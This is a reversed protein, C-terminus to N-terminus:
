RLLEWKLVTILAIRHHMRARFGLPARFMRHIVQLGCVEGNVVHTGLVRDGLCASMTGLRPVRSSLESFCGYEATRKSGAAFFRSMRTLHRGDFWARPAVDSDRM